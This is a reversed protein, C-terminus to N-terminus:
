GITEQLRVRWEELEARKQQYIYEAAELDVQEFRIKDNARLQGLKDVDASIVQAIKPYGGITQGDIGLVICQGDRTVQVTGPCVPESVIETPKQTLPKGLLRLGMRNSAPAVTFSQEFFEPMSFWATQSGGLVRLVAPEHNWNWMGCVTRGKMRSPSCSLSDGAQLPAIASRSALITPAEFGGHVCFYARAGKSAGGIRITDGKELNFSYGPQLPRENRSIEFPAGWIVCAISCEAELMPGSLNIELAVADPANGVLGNGIALAFRDGAGGVPVGLSRSEPRGFDVLLTHLGPSLVKLTM